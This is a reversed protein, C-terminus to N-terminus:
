IAKLLKPNDHQTWTDFVGAINRALLRGIPTIFIQRKSLKVLGDEELPKLAELELYFYDDFHIHYKKEIEAKKLQFNSMLQMIVDRRLVDARSLKIGKSVPFSGSDIAQCYNKLHNQNQTYTDELMSISTAGFGFLDINPQTTYGQFNRKLTRKRQAIALSDNPKAFHDIGIFTYENDMLEEITMQLISLKEQASPLASYPINIQVPKLWPAYAFNFVSIREPDLNIAKRVTEQFSHLTQYPLGYILDVNVSYFGADRIWEMVDFLMKEPQVRNVAEQVRPNFDQIGVSIQNFGLSRLFFISNRDVYKPNIEISIEAKDDIYFYENITEWLSEVQELSLYNPTGGGWHIQVAHRQSDILDSTHEIERKLYQLYKDLLTTNQTVIGNCGCFYCASQCFPLHFYLSLPSQRQNSAAIAFRYDLETFDDKLETPSPYRSYRPAPKDYKQILDRDFLVNQPIYIM